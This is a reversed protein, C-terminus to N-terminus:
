EWIGKLYKASSLTKELDNKAIELVNQNKSLRADWIDVKFFDKQAVARRRSRIYHLRDQECKTYWHDQDLLTKSHNLKGLTQLLCWYIASKKNSFSHMFEHWVNYVHWSGDVSKVTHKGVMYGSNVPVIVPETQLIRRTEKKTWVGIYISAAETAQIVEKLQPKALKKNSKRTRSKAM